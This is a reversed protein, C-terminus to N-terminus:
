IKFNKKIFFANKTWGQRLTLFCKNENKMNLFSLFTSCFTVVGKGQKTVISGSFIFVNSQFKSPENNTHM